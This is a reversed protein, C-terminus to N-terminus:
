ALEQLQMHKKMGGHGMGEGWGKAVHFGSGVRLLTQQLFEERTVVLPGARNGVNGIHDEDAKAQGNGLENINYTYGM